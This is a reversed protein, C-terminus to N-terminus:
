QDMCTKMRSNQVNYSSKVCPLGDDSLAKGMWNASKANHCSSAISAPPPSSCSDYQVSCRLPRSGSRNRVSWERGGSWLEFPDRTTKENDRVIESLSRWNLWRSFAVGNM